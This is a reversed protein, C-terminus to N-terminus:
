LLYKSLTSSPLHKPNKKKFQLKEVENRKHTKSKITRCLTGAFQAIAGNKRRVASFKASCVFNNTPNRRAGFMEVTKIHFLIASSTNNSLMFVFCQGSAAREHIRNTEYPDIDARVCFVINEVRRSCFLERSARTGHVL